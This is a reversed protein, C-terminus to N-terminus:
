QNTRDSNQLEGVGGNHTREGSAVLQIRIWKLLDLDTATFLLRFQTYKPRLPSPTTVHNCVPWYSASSIWLRSVPRCTKWFTCCAATTKCCGSSIFNRARPAPVRWRWCNKRRRHFEVKANFQIVTNWSGFYCVEPDSTHEALEKLVHTRPNSTIDLYYSLATRFTCPCPFPHKKSSDEILFFFPFTIYDPM